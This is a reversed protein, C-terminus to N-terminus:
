HMSAHLFATMREVEARPEDAILVFTRVGASWVAARHGMVEILADGRAGQPLMFVSVPHGHHRYMIHAALGEPYLCPRAGVLELDAREPHDPLRMQWDFYSAMSDEVTSADHHTGLVNNVLRFCKVHDATLEAAMVRTSHVTLGYLAAAGAVLVVGAALALSKLHRRWHPVSPSGQSWSLAACRSRLAAPAPADVLVQRRERMLSQVAREAEVRGCCVRCRQIHRTVVVANASSIDGDVYPTVLRDIQDCDTM